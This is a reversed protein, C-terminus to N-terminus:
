LKSLILEDKYCAVVTWGQEALLNLKDIDVGIAPNIKLKYYKSVQKKVGKILGESNEYYTRLGQENYEYKAWYGYSDENYTIKGQENREIYPFDKIGLKQAKTM